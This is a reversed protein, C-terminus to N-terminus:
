HGFWTHILRSIRRKVALMEPNDRGSIANLDNCHSAGPIVDAPTTPNLDSQISMTRWPDVQGNTFYVNTVKTNWAGFIVNKRDIFGHITANTFTDDYLDTCFKTYFDVPFSTGFPQFPSGSTQYWGFESCTQYLWPRSASRVAGSSIHTERYYEITDDYNELCDDGQLGVYERFFRAFETLDTSISENSTRMIRNCANGIDNNSFFM